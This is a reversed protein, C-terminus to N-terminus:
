KYRIAAPRTMNDDLIIANANPFQDKTRKITIRLVGSPKDRALTPPKVTGLYEYECIPKSKYYIDLGEIQEVKATNCNKVIIKAGFGIMIMSSIILVIAISLLINIKKM